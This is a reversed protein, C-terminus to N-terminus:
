QSFVSLTNTTSETEITREINISEVLDGAGRNVVELQWPQTNDIIEFSMGEVEIDVTADAAAPDITRVNDGSWSGIATGYREINSTEVVNQTSTVTQTMSGTTFQPQGQALSPSAILLLLFLSKITSM